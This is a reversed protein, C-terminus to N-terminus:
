YWIVALLRRGAHSHLENCEITRDGDPNAAYFRAKVLRLWEVKDLGKRAIRNYARYTKPGIRGRVEDYELTSDRDPNIASFTALGARKVEFINLRGDGNRDYRAVAACHGAEASPATAALALFGTAALAALGLARKSAM